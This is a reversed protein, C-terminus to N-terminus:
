NNKTFLRDLKDRKLMKQGTKGIAILRDGVKAEISCILENGTLSIVKASFVLEEGVFAPSHHDISLHTGVGEEDDEKMEIFFLRSSWEMDRAMAFTSYVAHLVKGHFAAVDAEEVRKKYVRIDGTNPLNKM